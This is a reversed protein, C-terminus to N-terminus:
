FLPIIFLTVNGTQASGEATQVRFYLTAANYSQTGANNITFSQTNNNTNASATSVTIATGTTVIATGGAGTATFLGCTATTLTGSADSLYLASVLYTSFGPPLPIIIANDTNAANFNIGTLTVRLRAIEALKAAAWGGATVGDQVVLRNNTTDIAIEGQAGTFTSVQAISGRRHQLQVASSTM